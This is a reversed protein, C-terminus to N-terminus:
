RHAADIAGNLGKDGYRGFDYRFMVSEVWPTKAALHLLENVTGDHCSFGFHKLKGSKKLREVVRGMEPTLVGPDEIGHLYYLDIYDTKLDKLSNNFTQEFGEPDHKDSKSTIWIDKRINARTHFNGVASECTRGGYVAAADYYNVGFRLAEAMKPDFRRDLKVAAGFLLIPIDKGTKGLVKRPVQPLGKEAAEVSRSALGTGGLAGAIGASGGIKFLDRRSIKTGM